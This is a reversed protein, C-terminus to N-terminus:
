LYVSQRYIFKTGATAFSASGALSKQYAIELRKQAQEKKILPALIGTM